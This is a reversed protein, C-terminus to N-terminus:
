QIANKRQHKLLMIWAATFLVASVVSRGWHYNVGDGLTHVYAVNGIIGGLVAFSFVRFIERMHAKVM